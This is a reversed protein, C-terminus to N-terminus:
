VKESVIQESNARALRSPIGSGPRRNFNILCTDSCTQKKEQEVRSLQGFVVQPRSNLQWDCPYEYRLSSFHNRLNVRFRMAPFIM